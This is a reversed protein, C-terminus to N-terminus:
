VGCRQHPRRTVMADIRNIHRARRFLSAALPGGAAQRVRRRGLHCLRPVKQRIGLQRGPKTGRAPPAIQSYPAELKCEQRYCTVHDIVSECRGPELM